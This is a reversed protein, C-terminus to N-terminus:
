VANTLGMRIQGGSTQSPAATVATTTGTEEHDRLAIRDAKGMESALRRGVAQRITGQKIPARRVLRRKIPNATIKRAVDRRGHDDSVATM